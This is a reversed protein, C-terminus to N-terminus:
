ANKDCGGRSGPKFCKYQSLISRGLSWCAASINGYSHVATRVRASVLWRDARYLLLGATKMDLAEPSRHDAIRAPM